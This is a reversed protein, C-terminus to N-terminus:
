SSGAPTSPRPLTSKAPEPAPSRFGKVTMPKLSLCIKNNLWRPSRGHILTVEAFDRYCLNGLHNEKKPFLTAALNLYLCNQVESCSRRSYFLFRIFERDSRVDFGECINNMISSAAGTIQGSLRYDMSFGARRAYGYISKTLARAAQWCELDEFREIKM